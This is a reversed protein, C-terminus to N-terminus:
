GRSTQNEEGRSGSRFIRDRDREPEASLVSAASHAPIKFKAAAKFGELEWLRVFGKDGVTLIHNGEASFGIATISGEHAQLNGVFRGTELDLMKVPVGSRASAVAVLREDPSIWLSAPPEGVVIISQLEEGTVSDWVKLTRDRAGTIVRNSKPFHDVCTV